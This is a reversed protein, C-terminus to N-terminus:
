LRLSGVGAGMGSDRPDKTEEGNGDEDVGAPATGECSSPGQLSPGPAGM